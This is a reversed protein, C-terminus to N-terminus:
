AITQTRCLPKQIDQQKITSSRRMMNNPKQNQLKNNLITVKKELTPGLTKHESSQDSQKAQPKWRASHGISQNIKLKTSLKATYADFSQAFDDSSQSEGCEDKCAKVKKGKSSTLSQLAFAKM